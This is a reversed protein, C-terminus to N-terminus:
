RRLGSRDRRRVLTHGVPELNAFSRPFVRAFINISWRCARRENMGRAHGFEHLLSLVSFPKGPSERLWIVRHYPEFCDPRSGVKLLVPPVGYATALWDLAHQAKEARTARDGRWPKARRYRKLARLAAPKFLAAPDRVEAVTAPYENGPAGSPPLRRTVM